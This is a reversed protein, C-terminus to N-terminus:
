DSYEAGDQSQVPNREKVESKFRNNGTRLNEFRIIVTKAEEDTLVVSFPMQETVIHISLLEV